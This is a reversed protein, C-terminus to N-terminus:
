NTGVQKKYEDGIRNVEQLSQQFATLTEQARAQDRAEVAQEFADARDGLTRLSGVLRDHVDKYDDPPELEELKQAAEDSATGLERVGALSEMPDQSTGKEIGSQFDTEAKDSIAQAQKRYEDKSMAGGGDDGGCAALALAVVFAATLAWIRQM